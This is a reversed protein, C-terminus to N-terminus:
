LLPQKQRCSDLKRRRQFVLSTLPAVPKRHTRGKELGRGQKKAIAMPHEELGEGTFETLSAPDYVQWDGDEDVVTETLRHKRFVYRNLLTQRETAFNCDACEFSKKERNEHGCDALHNEWENKTDYRKFCLPCAFGPKRSTVKFFPMVRSRYCGLSDELSLPQSKGAMVMKGNAVDIVSENTKLFDLGLIGKLAIDVV